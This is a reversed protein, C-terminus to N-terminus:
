FRVFLKNVITGLGNNHRARCCSSLASSSIVHLGHRPRKSAVIESDQHLSQSFDHCWFIVNVLGSM